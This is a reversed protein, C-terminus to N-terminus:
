TPIIYLLASSTRMAKMKLDGSNIAVEMWSLDDSGAVSM